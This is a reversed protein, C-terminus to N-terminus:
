DDEWGEDDAWRNDTLDIKEVSTGRRDRGQDPVSTALVGAAAHLLSTAASALHQKVEPSTERVTAIVQCVPCYRCDAGGTAIHENISGLSTAAGGAAAAAAGAYEGGSELAWEQLVGLLKAAEQGVSGVQEDKTEESM